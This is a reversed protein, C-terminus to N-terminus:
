QPINILVQPVTFRVGVSSPRYMGTLSSSRALSVVGFTKNGRVLINNAMCQEDSREGKGDSCTLPICLSGAKYM